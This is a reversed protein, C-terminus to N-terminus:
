WSNFLVFGFGVWLLCVVKGGGFIQISLVVKNDKFFSRPTAIREEKIGYVKTSICIVNCFNIISQKGKRDDPLLM